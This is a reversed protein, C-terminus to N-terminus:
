LWCSCFPFCLHFIPTLVKDLNDRVLAVSKRWMWQYHLSESGCLVLRDVPPKQPTETLPALWLCSDCQAWGIGVCSNQRMNRRCPSDWVAAMISWQILASARNIWYPPIESVSTGCMICTNHLRTSQIKWCMLNRCLSACVPGSHFNWVYIYCSIYISWGWTQYLLAFSSLESTNREFGSAGASLCYVLSLLNLSVIYRDLLFLILHKNVMGINAKGMFLVVNM